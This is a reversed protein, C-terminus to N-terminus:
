FYNTYINLFIRECEHLIDSPFEECKIVFSGSYGNKSFNIKAKYYEMIDSYFNGDLYFGYENPKYLSLIGSIINIWSQTISYKEYHKGKSKM